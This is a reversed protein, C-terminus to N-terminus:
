PHHDAKSAPPHCQLVLEQKRGGEKGPPRVRKLKILCKSISKSQSLCKFGACPHPLSAHQGPFHFSLCCPNLDVHFPRVSISYQKASVQICFSELRHNSIWRPRAVPELGDLNAASICFTASAVSIDTSNKGAPALKQAM